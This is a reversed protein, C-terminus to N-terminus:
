AVVLRVPSTDARCPSGTLQTIDVANALARNGAASLHLGDGADFAPALRTPRARDAVAAAFDFVGDAHERGHALVWANVAARTAIAAPAGHERAESPTITTLFVRKGAARVRAAFTQLGAVIEEVSRGDAVDNTGVNLVVDSLNRVARVDRGLRTLPSDGGIRADVLLRNSSIGANLVAMERAGGAGTLRAALADSWRQQADLRGGMGDTISDGVAIVANTARPALVEIGTLVLWSYLPTGFTTARDDLAVDGARSLYSTQLSLAHRTVVDPRVPLYISVALPKGAEALVSVPDSLVEEGPPIVVGSMGGFTVHRLTAAVLAATGETRAASVTGIALPAEGYANSLRVRIQPGTAQPRVIMRLTAGALAPDAPGPQAAAHWGTVWTPACSPPVPWPSGAIVRALRLHDPHTGLVVGIACMLTAAVALVARLV